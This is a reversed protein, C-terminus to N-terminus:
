ALVFNKSLCPRGVSCASISIFRLEKGLYSEFPVLFESLGYVPFLTTLTKYDANETPEPATFGISM